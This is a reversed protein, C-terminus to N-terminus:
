PQFDLMAHDVFRHAHAHLARRARRRAEAPHRLAAGEGGADEIYARRAVAAEKVINYGRAPQIMILVKGLDLIPLHFQAGDCFPDLEPDKWQNIILM